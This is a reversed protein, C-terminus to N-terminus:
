PLAEETPPGAPAGGALGAVPAWLPKVSPYFDQELYRGLRGRPPEAGPGQGAVSRGAARALEVKAEFDLPLSPSMGALDASLLADLSQNTGNVSVTFDSVTSLDLGDPLQDLIALDMDFKVLPPICFKLALLWWLNFVFLIIPLFLNLLFLAVITVLPIAFFCMAGSLPTSRAPPMTGSKPLLQQPQDFGMSAFQRPDQATAVQSQLAQLDPMKITVPRNAMGQLDMVPAICFPRTAASWVLEGRCGTTGPLRTCAERRRRRLFCRIEFVGDDDFRPNGQLDHQLSSTPIVGFYLARGAADHGSGEPHVRRMPIVHERADAQTGDQLSDLAAPTDPIDRWEGSRATPDTPDLGVWRQRRTAYDHSAMWDHLATRGADVAAKRGAIEAELRGAAQLEAIRKDRAAKMGAKLPGKGLVEALATQAERLSELAAEIGAVDEKAVLTSRRRLVFGAQCVAERDPSPFGGTDCHLEAVVIYFREHVPQYLKLLGSSPRRLKGLEGQRFPVRSQVRLRTWDRAAELVQGARGVLGSKGAILGPDSRFDMDEDFLLSRQPEALFAKVFGPHAYKQIEPVSLRGDAPLGPRPWRYWPGVLKWDHPALSVM